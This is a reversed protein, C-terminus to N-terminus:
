AAAPEYGFVQGLFRGMREYQDRLTAAQRFGHGEGPYVVLTAMLGKAEVAAAMAVAQEKPVVLDDEGQLILM